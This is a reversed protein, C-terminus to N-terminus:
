HDKGSTELQFDYRELYPALTQVLDDTVTELTGEFPMPEWRGTHSQFSLGFHDRGLHTLRAVTDSLDCNEVLLHSGHARVSIHDYDGRARILAEVNSAYGKAIVRDLKPGSQGKRRRM